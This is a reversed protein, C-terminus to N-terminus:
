PLPQFSIGGWATFNCTNVDTSVQLRPWLLPTWHRNPYPPCCLAKWLETSLSPGPFSTWLLFPRWTQRQRNHAGCLSLQFWCSSVEGPAVSTAKLHVQLLPGM